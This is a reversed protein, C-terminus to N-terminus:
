LAMAGIEQLLKEWAADKRSIEAAQKYAKHLRKCRHRSEQQSRIESLREPNEAATRSVEIWQGCKACHLAQM